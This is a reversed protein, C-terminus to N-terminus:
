NQQEVDPAIESVDVYPRALIHIMRKRKESVFGNDVLWKITDFIVAEKSLFAYGLEKEARTSNLYAYTGQFTDLWKYPSTSSRGTIKAAVSGFWSPKKVGETERHAAIKLGTQRAVVSLVNKMTANDGGFCYCEGPTGKREAFFLGRAVDRVDVLSFGLDGYIRLAGELFGHILHIAPTLYFVNPGFPLGPLAFIIPLHKKQAAEWALAEAQQYVAVHSPAIGTKVNQEDLLIDSRRSWGVACMMNVYVMKKVEYRMAVDLVMTTGELVNDISGVAVSTEQVPWETIYYLVDCGWIAKEIVNKDTLNGYVFEVDLGKLGSTYQSSPLFVRVIRGRMLLERVVSGGLHGHANIVITRPM